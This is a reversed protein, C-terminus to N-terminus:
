LDLQYGQNRLTSIKIDIKNIKKRLSFIHVDITRNTVISNDNFQKILEERNIPNNKNQYLHNFIVFESFTLGVINGDKMVSKAESLLRIGKNFSNDNLLRTKEFVNNLKIMLEDPNFPKTIYDDAGSKLGKVINESQNYGSLMFIPTIKDKLRITTVIDVGKIGKLNWDILYVCNEHHTKSNFFEEASSYCTVLFENKELLYKLGTLLNEEDDIIVVNKKM